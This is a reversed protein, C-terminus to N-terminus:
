RAELATKVALALLPGLTYGLGIIGEHKGGADVDANGVVMAYYLAATYAGGFGVGFLVLGVTTLALSPAFMALAFGVVLAGGSWVVTRWRGHWGHWRELLVFAAVRMAPWASALPTRWDTAVGLDRLRDPLRPNLAAGLVFSSFLLVRFTTLLRKARLPDDVGDAVTAEGHAGPRVPLRLILALGLVHVAGLGALTMLPARQILPAILWLCVVIASAWAINFRGMANRLRAGSRGSALYSEVLPWMLGSLVAYVGQFVWLTWAESVLPPLFCAGAMLVTILVFLSRPTLLTSRREAYRLVPGSLFAGPTYAVGYVLALGLNERWEWGFRSAAVFYVGYAAVASGLSNAFTLALAPWLAPPAHAARLAGSLRPPAQTTM